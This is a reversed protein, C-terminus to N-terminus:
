PFYIKEDASTKQLALPRQLDVWGSGGHHADGKPSPCGKFSDTVSHAPCQGLTFCGWQVHTSQSAHSNVQEKQVAKGVSDSPHTKTQGTKWQSDPELKWAFSCLLATHQSQMLRTNQGISVIKKSWNDPSLFFACLCTKSPNLLKQRQIWVFSLLWTLKWRPYTPLEKSLYLCFILNENLNKGHRQWGEALLLWTCLWEVDSAFSLEWDHKEMGLTNFWFCHLNQSTSLTLWMKDQKQCVRLLFLQHHHCMGLQLKARFASNWMTAQNLKSHDHSFNQTSMIGVWIFSWQVPGVKVPAVQVRYVGLVGKIIVQSPM